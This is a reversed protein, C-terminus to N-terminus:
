RILNSFYLTSCLSEPTGEYMQDVDIRINKAVTVM